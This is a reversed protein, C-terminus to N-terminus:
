DDNGELYQLEQEIKNSSLESAIEPDVASVLNRSPLQIIVETGTSKGSNILIEGGHLEILARAIPLGLGAGERWRNHSGDVQGFPKLAVDIENDTMGVGTDKVHLCVGGHALRDTYIEVRGGAPTFRIANSVINSIVQQLKASDGRIPPLPSNAAVVLEVGAESSAPRLAATAAIVLENVSVESDDLTYRGSQMKSMDLIDNIVALLQGASDHILNAYQVIDDDALRRRDHESLLKSFGIVTNLPTRLEHSMNAIFESKVRSALDAEIRATQEATRARQRLVADGLLSSYESLLTNARGAGFSGNLM